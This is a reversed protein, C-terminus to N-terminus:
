SMCLTCLQIDGLKVEGVRKLFLLAVLFQLFFTGNRLMAWVLCTFGHVRKTVHGYSRDFRSLVKQSIEMRWVDLSIVPLARETSALARGGPLVSILLLNQSEFGKVLEHSM